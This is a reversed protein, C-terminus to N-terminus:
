APGIRGTRAPFGQFAVDLPKSDGGGPNMVYGLYPHLVERRRLGADEIGPARETGAVDELRQRAPWWAFACGHKSAYPVFSGVEVAALVVLVLGTAFMRQKRRGGAPTESM